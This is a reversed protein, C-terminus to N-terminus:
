LHTQTYKNTITTTTICSVLPQLFILDFGFLDPDSALVIFEMNSMRRGHNPAKIQNTTKILCAFVADMKVFNYPMLICYLSESNRVTACFYESHLKMQKILPTHWVQKSDVLNSVTHIHTFHGSRREKM